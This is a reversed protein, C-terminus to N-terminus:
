KNKRWIIVVSAIFLTALEAFITVAVGAWFPNVYM